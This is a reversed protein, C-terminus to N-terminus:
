ATSLRKLESIRTKKGLTYSAESISADFGLITAMRLVTGACGVPFVGAKAMLMVNGANNEAESLFEEFLSQDYATPQILDMRNGGVIFHKAGIARLPAFIRAWATLEAKRTLENNGWWPALDQMSLPKSDSPYTPIVYIVGKERIRKPLLHVALNEEAVILPFNEKLVRRILKDRAKKYNVGLDGETYFPHVLIHVIGQSRRIKETLSVMEQHPMTELSLVILDERPEQQIGDPIRKVDKQETM